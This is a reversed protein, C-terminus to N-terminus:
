VAEQQNYLMSEVKRKGVIEDLLDFSLRQPKYTSNKVSDVVGIYNSNEMRGFDSLFIEAIIYNSKAEYRERELKIEFQELKQLQIANLKTSKDRKYHRVDSIKMNYESELRRMCHAYERLQSIVAITNKFFEAM